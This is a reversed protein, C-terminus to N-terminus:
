NGFALIERGLKEFNPGDSHTTVPWARDRRIWDPVEWKKWESDLEDRDKLSHQLIVIRSLRIKTTNHGNGSWVTTRHATTLAISTLIWAHMRHCPLHIGVLILQKEWPHLCLDIREVGNSLNALFKEVTRRCLQCRAAFSSKKDGLWNERYEILYFEIRWWSTDRCMEDSGQRTASRWMLPTHKAVNEQVTRSPCCIKLGIANGKTATMLDLVRMHMGFSSWTFKWWFLDLIAGDSSLEIITLSLQALLTRDSFLLAWSRDRFSSTSIVQWCNM